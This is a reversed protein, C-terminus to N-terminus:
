TQCFSFPCMNEMQCSYDYAKRNEANVFYKDYFMAIHYM